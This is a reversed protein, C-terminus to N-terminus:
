PVVSRGIVADHLEVVENVSSHMDPQNQLHWCPRLRQTPESAQSQMAGERGAAPSVSSAVSGGSGGSSGSGGSTARQASLGPPVALSPTSLQFGPSDGGLGGPGM